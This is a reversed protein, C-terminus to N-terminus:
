YCTKKKKELILSLILAFTCEKACWAVANCKGRSSPGTPNPRTPSIQYKVLLNYLIGFVAVWLPLSIGLYKVIRSDKFFLVRTSSKLSGNRLQFENQHLLTLTGGSYSSGDDDISIQERCISLLLVDLHMYFFIGLIYFFSLAYKKRHKM